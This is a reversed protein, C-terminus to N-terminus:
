NAIFAVSLGSEILMQPESFSGAGMRATKKQSSRLGSVLSRRCDLKSFTGVANDKKCNYIFCSDPCARRMEDSKSCSEGFM